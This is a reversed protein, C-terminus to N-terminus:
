VEVFQATLIQTFLNLIVKWRWPNFELPDDYKEPNYHVNPYGMFLWGAPITYDGAQFEHDIIRLVTPATSTLRLSENIM